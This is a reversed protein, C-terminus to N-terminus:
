FGGIEDELREAYSEIQGQGAEHLGGALLSFGESLWVGGTYSIIGFAVDDFDMLRDIYAGAGASAAGAVTGVLGQALWNGGSVYANYGSQIGGLISGAIAGSIMGPMAGSFAGTGIGLLTASTDGDSDYHSSIGGIAGGVVARTLLSPLSFEEGNLDVYTTPSNICYLYKHLTLPEKFKGDAPDRATFRM